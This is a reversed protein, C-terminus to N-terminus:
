EVVIKGEYLINSDNWIRYIYMGKTLNGKHFNYNIEKNNIVPLNIDQVENGNLDYIELNCNGLNITSALIHFNTSESFSTPSVEVSFKPNETTDIGQPIAFEIKLIPHLELHNLAEGSQGHPPDLFAVGTVQVNAINLNTNTSTGVHTSVWNRATIYENVHASTSAVACTPDPIETIITYTGDSFVLHYDNDSELRLAKITGIATYAQYELGTIRTDVTTTSPTSIHVLANITTVIPTFNVQSANADTLVKCNWRETGGCKTDGLEEGGEDYIKITSEQAKLGVQLSLLFLIIFFLHKKM